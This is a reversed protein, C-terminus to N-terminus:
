NVLNTADNGNRGGQGYSYSGVDSLTEQDYGSRYWLALIRIASRNCLNVFEEKARERAERLSM